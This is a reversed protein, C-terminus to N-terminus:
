KATEIGFDYYGGPLSLFYEGPPLPSAPTLRYRAMRGGLIAEGKLEEVVVPVDRKNLSNHTVFAGAM